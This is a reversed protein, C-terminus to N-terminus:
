IYLSIVTYTATKAPLKLAKLELEGVVKTTKSM